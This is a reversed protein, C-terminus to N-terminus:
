LLPYSIFNIIFNPFIILCFFVASFIISIIANNTTTINTNVENVIIPQFVTKIDIAIFSITSGIFSNIFSTSLFSIYIVARTWDARFSFLM